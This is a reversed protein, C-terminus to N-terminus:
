SVSQTVGSPTALLTCHLHSVFTSSGEMDFPGVTGGNLSILDGRSRTIDLWVDHVLDAVRYIFRPM